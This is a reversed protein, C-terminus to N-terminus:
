MEEKEEAQDKKARVEKIGKLATKLLDVFESRSLESVKKNMISNWKEGYKNSLEETLEDINRLDISNKKEM